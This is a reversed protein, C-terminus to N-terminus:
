LHQLKLLHGASKWYSHTSTVGFCVDFLCWDVASTGFKRQSRNLFLLCDAFYLFRCVRIPNVQWTTEATLNCTTRLALHGPGLDSNPQNCLNFQLQEFLTTTLLPRFNAPFLYPNPIFQSVCPLLYWRNINLDSLM